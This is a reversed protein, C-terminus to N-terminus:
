AAIGVNIHLNNSATESSSEVATLNPDNHVINNGFCFTDISIDGEKKCFTIAHSIYGYSISAEIERSVSYVSKAESRIHAEIKLIARTNSERELALVYGVADEAEDEDLYLSRSPLNSTSLNSTPLVTYNEMPNNKNWVAICSKANMLTFADCIPIEQSALKRLIEINTESIIWKQEPVLSRCICIFFSKDNRCTFLIPYGDEVFIHDLKLDGFQPINSFYPNPIYM